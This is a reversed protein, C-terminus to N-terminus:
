GHKKTHHCLCALVVYHSKLIHLHFMIINLFAMVFKFLKWLLCTYWALYVLYNTIIHLSVCEHTWFISFDFICKRQKWCIKCYIYTYMLGNVIKGQGVILSVNVWIQQIQIINAMYYITCMHYVHVKHLISWAKLPPFHKAMFIIIHANLVFKM